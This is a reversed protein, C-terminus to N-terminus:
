VVQGHKKFYARRWRKQHFFAKTGVKATRATWGAYGDGAKRYNHLANHAWSRGFRLKHLHKVADRRWSKSKYRTRDYTNRKHYYRNGLYERSSM